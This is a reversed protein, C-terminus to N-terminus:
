IHSELSITTILAFLLRPAPHQRKQNLYRTLYPFNRIANIHNPHDAKLIPSFTKALHQYEPQLKITCTFFYTKYRRRHPSPHTELIDLMPGPNIEIDGSRLLILSKDFTTVLAYLLRKRHINPHNQISRYLCGYTQQIIQHNSKLFPKYKTKISIHERKLKITNPTFYLKSRKKHTSLHNYPKRNIPRTNPKINKNILGRFSQREEEEKKNITQIFNNSINKKKNLLLNKPLIHKTLPKYSKTKTNKPHYENISKVTPLDM